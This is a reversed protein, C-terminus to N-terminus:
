GESNRFANELNSILSKIKGKFNELVFKTMIGFALYPQFITKFSTEIIILWSLLKDDCYYLGIRTLLSPSITAIENTEFILSLTKPIRISTLNALIM